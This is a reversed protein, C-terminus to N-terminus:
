DLEFFAAHEVIMNWIQLEKSFTPPLPTILREPSILVGTRQEQLQPYNLFLHDDIPFAIKNDILYYSYKERFLDLLEGPLAARQDESPREAHRDATPGWHPM